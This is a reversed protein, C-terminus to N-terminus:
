RNSVHGDVKSDRKQWAGFDATLEDDRTSSDCPTKSLARRRFRAAMSGLNANWHVRM